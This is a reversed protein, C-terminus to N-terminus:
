DLVVRDFGQDEWQVLERLYELAVTDDDAIM